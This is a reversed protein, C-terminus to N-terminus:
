KNIKKDGGDLHDDLLELHRARQRRVVGPVVRGLHQVGGEGLQVGRGHVVALVSARGLVKDEVRLHLDLSAGSTPPPPVLPDTNSLEKTGRLGHVGNGDQGKGEHAVRGDQGHVLLELLLHVMM